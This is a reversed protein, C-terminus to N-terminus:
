KDGNDSNDHPQAYPAVPNVKLFDYESTEAVENNLTETEAKVPTQINSDPDEQNTEAIITNSPDEEKENDLEASLEAPKSPAKNKRVHNPDLMSVGLGFATIALMFLLDTINGNYYVGKGDYYSFSFDAFYLLVFGVLIVIIPLRFRGGLMKWSLAFIAIATTTIIADGISYGLDFFSKWFTQEFYAAGGRAVEVLFYYSLFIMIVSVLFVLIQGSIKKLGYKAGTAKSLMLIGIFWLPIASFDVIDLLHSQPAETGPDAFLFYSWGLQGFSWMLLGLSIFFVGRGVGSKLWNWKAATLIGFVAFVLASLGMAIQWWYNLNQERTGTFFIVAWTTLMLSSITVIAYLKFKKNM